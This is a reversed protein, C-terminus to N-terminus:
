QPALQPATVHRRSPPPQDPPPPSFALDHTPVGSIPIRHRSPPVLSSRSVHVSPGTALNATLVIRIATRGRIQREVPDFGHPTATSRDHQGHFSIGHLVM